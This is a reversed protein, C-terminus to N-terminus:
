ELTREGDEERGDSRDDKGRFRACGRPRRVCPRILRDRWGQRLERGERSGALLILPCDGHCTFNEASNLEVAGKFRRSFGERSFSKTSLRRRDCRSAKRTEDSKRVSYLRCISSVRTISSEYFKVLKYYMYIIPERPQHSCSLLDNEEFDCNVSASFLLKM